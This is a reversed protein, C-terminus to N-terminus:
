VPSNSNLGPDAARIKCVVKGLLTSKINWNNLIFDFALLQSYIHLCILQESLKWPKTIIMLKNNHMGSIDFSLLPM